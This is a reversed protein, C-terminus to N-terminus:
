GAALFGLARDRGCGEQGIPSLPEAKEPGGLFEKRERRRSLTHVEFKLM